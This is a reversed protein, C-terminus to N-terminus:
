ETYQLIVVSTNDLTSKNKQAAARTMERACRYLDDYNDYIIQTIEDPTLTDTVGDTCLLLMDGNRMFYPKSNIDRYAIGGMGLYSLLTNKRPDQQAQEASITGNEVLKDLVMSYNHKSTIPKLLGDQFMFITSDGVSAWYLRRNEVFVSIFTTGAGRDSPIDDFHSIEYDIYDLMESLFHPIDIQKTPLKKVALKMMSVATLSARDGCDLGGMGDCVVAFTRNLRFPLIKMSEDVYLSDQQEPRNGRISSSATIIYPEKRSLMRYADQLQAIERGHAAGKLETVSTFRQNYKVDLRLKKRRHVHSSKKKASDQKTPKNKKNKISRKRFM